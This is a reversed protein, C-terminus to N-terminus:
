AIVVARMRIALPALPALLALLALLAVMATRAARIYRATHPVPALIPMRMPTAKM